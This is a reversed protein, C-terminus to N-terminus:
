KEYNYVISIINGNFIYPPLGYKSSKYLTVRFINKVVYSLKLYPPLSVQIYTIETRTFRDAVAIYWETAMIVKTTALIGKLTATIM